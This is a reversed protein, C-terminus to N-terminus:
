KPAPKTFCVMTLIKLAQDLRIMGGGSGGPDETALNRTGDTEEICNVVVAAHEGGDADFAIAIPNGVSLVQDKMSSFDVAIPSNERRMVGSSVLNKTHSLAGDLNFTHDCDPPPSVASSPPCCEKGNREKAPLLATALSCQTVGSNSDFFNAVSSTVAAWCWFAMPKQSEMTFSLGNLPKRAIEKAGGLGIVTTRLEKKAKAM